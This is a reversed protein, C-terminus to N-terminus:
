LTGDVSLAHLVPVTDKVSGVLAVAALYMRECRRGRPRRGPRCSGRSRAERTWGGGLRAEIVVRFFPWPKVDCNKAACRPVASTVAKASGHLVKGITRKLPVM